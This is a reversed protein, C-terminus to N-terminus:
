LYDELFIIVIDQETETVNWMKFKIFVSTSSSYIILLQTIIKNITADVQLMLTYCWCLILHKLGKLTRQLKKFQRKSNNWM